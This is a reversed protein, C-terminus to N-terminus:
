NVKLGPDGFGKILVQSGCKHSGGGQPLGRMQVKGGLLFDQLRSPGPDDESYRRALM